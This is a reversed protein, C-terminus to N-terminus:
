LLTQVTLPARLAGSRGRGRASRQGCPVPFRLGGRAAPPACPPRCGGGGPSSRAVGAPARGKGSPLGWARGWRAAPPGAGVRPRPSPPDGCRERGPRLRAGVGGAPRGRAGGGGAAVGSRGADTRGDARAAGAGVTCPSRAAPTGAPGPRLPRARAAPEAEGGGPAAGVGPGRGGGIDTGTGAAAPSGRGAAGRRGPARRGCATAPPPTPQM